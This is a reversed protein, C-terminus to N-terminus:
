WLRASIAVPCATLRFRTAHAFCACPTRVALLRERPPSRLVSHPDEGCEAKRHDLEVGFPLLKHCEAVHGNSVAVVKFVQRENRRTPLGFCGNLNRTRNGQVPQSRRTPDPRCFNLIGARYRVNTGRVTKRATIPACIMPRVSLLPVTTKSKSALCARHILRMESESGTKAM